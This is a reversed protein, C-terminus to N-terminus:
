DGDKLKAGGRSKKVCGVWVGAKEGEKGGRGREKRKKKAERVITMKTNQSRMMTSLTRSSMEWRLNLGRRPECMKTEGWLVLRGQCYTMRLLLLWSFFSMPYQIAIASSLLLAGGLGSEGLIIGAAVQTGSVLTGLAVGIGLVVAGKDEDIIIAGDLFFLRRVVRVIRAIAHGGKGRGEVIQASQTKRSRSVRNRLASGTVPM